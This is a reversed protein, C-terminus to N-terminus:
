QGSAAQSDGHVLKGGIFTAAVRLRTLDDATSLNGDLIVADARKGLELSGCERESSAARAASRTYFMLAEDLSIAQDPEHARGRATLRTVATHMALLPDFGAVPYDSSGAVLVGADLLWRLATNRLGPVSPASTFAPLRLFGPQAVVAVGQDAIRRALVQDVFIAHELRPVGARTLDAGVDRYCALALEVADNGIAHIAVSFGREAATRVLDRAENPDHIRIGTRIKKGLKPADPALYRLADASRQGLSKVLANLVFRGTDLWGLCMACAPAGDFILKVPGVGLHGNMEGTVPGELAEWPPELYGRSSVPMMVTPVTLLGRQEAERYLTVLDAPVTADVVRTIGAAVLERHHRALRELFGDPDRAVLNARALSEVRSMGREILLGSPVGGAGRAIVGGTPDPTHRDIGALELARANALARHCSYHLAFLPHDPVAADLEARTPPRREVLLLEDWEMALLWEGPALERARAELVRQLSPIDSVDPPGLRVLGGYLAVVCPHQHPDIFGPLLTRGDLDWVDDCTTALAEAEDGLARVRGGEFAIARVREGKEDLVRVDANCLVRTHM